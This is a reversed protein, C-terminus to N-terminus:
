SLAEHAEKVRMFLLFVLGIEEEVHSTSCRVEAIVTVELPRREEPLVSKIGNRM